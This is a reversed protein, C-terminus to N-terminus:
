EDHGGKPPGRFPVQRPGPPRAAYLAQDAAHFQAEGADVGPASVGGASAAHALVAVGVSVSLSREPFLAGALTPSTGSVRERIATAVDRPICYLHQFPASATGADVWHIATLLLIVTLVHLGRKRGVILVIARPPSRPATANQIAAARLTNVTSEGVIGACQGNM